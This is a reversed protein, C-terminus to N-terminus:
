SAAFNGNTPMNLSHMYQTVRKCTLSCMAVRVVSLMEKGTWSPFNMSSRTEEPRYLEALSTM